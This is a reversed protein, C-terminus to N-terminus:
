TKAERKRAARARAAHRAIREAAGYTAKAGALVLDVVTRCFEEDVKEGFSLIRVSAPAFVLEAVIEAPTDPPLEGRDIGRQVVEIRLQRSRQRLERAIRDVEPEAREMQLIRVVGRGLPSASFQASERLVALLDDRLSGTDPPSPLVGKAALTAAVLEGKCPWRRYITTKNIGSREAVDEVRLAAYGVRSLQEATAKLVADVVRASRGQLHVGETRRTTPTTMPQSM